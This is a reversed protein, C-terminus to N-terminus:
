DNLGTLRKIEIMALQYAEITDIHSRTIEFLTKQADLVELYGFKGHRFGEQVAEFAANAGPLVDSELAKVESELIKLDQWFADLETQVSVKAATLTAKAKSVNHGAESIGGQNRNFFMLPISVGAVIATDNTEEFRRVGGSFTIDPLRTARALLVQTQAQEVQLIRKNIEPHQLAQDALTNLDPLTQSSGDFNGVAETFIPSDSGWFAALKKRNVALDRRAKEHSIKTTSLLLKAKTAEVPSVKGAEVRALVTSLVEEALRVQERALQLREQSALVAVFTRDADATLNLRGAQYELEAIAADFGAVRRRKERKGGLPVLQSVAITTEAADFGSMENDGAFNEVEIDLEPNALLGAQLTASKGAEVQFNLAALEQNNKLVLSIVQGRTLQETPESFNSREDVSFSYKMDPDSSGAWVLQSTPGGIMLALALLSINLRYKKLRM